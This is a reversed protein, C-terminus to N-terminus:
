YRLNAVWIDSEYQSVTLYLRDPGFSINGGLAAPLAPDDFAIVLRAPGGAAPLAWVGTRGDQHVASLYVTRGDRSYRVSGGQLTLGNAGILDYRWLVRRDPAILFLEHGGPLSGLVGRGDPAWDFSFPWAGSDTLQVAERWAAGVSDRSVVWIEGGTRESYFAINLGDPSWRPNKDFAPSCTLTKPAGGSIPIVMVEALGCPQNDAYFAVERGDPSGRPDFEEGPFDTVRIAEGGELPMRWLDMGGRLNSDFVLWRGDPSVDHTEIVQSGSTVAQGDAISTPSRGGLPYSWINQRLTFKAWALKRAAIAYSVSHPDGLGSIM